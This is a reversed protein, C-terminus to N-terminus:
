NIKSMKEFLKSSRSLEEYTGQAKLEGKDLLFIIDCNKVTTLRHAILIITVKKGLNNIAKMIRQETLNDLASTAEDLILVQPKHYLARAIGLLQRQGGSFRIGREGLITDYNNPLVKTVFDHLNAIKAANEVAANDIKQPNLGFAINATVTDDILYIQQPVYGINKQWSSKKKNTIVNGDISITGKNADL